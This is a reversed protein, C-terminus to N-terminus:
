NSSARTSRRCTTCSCSCGSCAGRSSRRSHARTEPSLYPEIIAYGDLGPVPLLNLLAASVQLFGLFSLAAWFRAHPRGTQDAAVQLVVVAFVVNVAARRSLRPQAALPHPVHESASLGRRGPLGIGGQAIFVLPLVISLLPHAYKFPNLTLYGAAEVSHGRGPLRHLRARVRAPVPLRGLRRARAPLCRLPGPRDLVLRELWCAASSPSRSSRSSSLAPVSRANRARPPTCASSGVLVRAAHRVRPLRGASLSRVDTRHSRAPPTRHPHEADVRAQGAAADTDDLAAPGGASAPATSTM